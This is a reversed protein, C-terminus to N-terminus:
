AIRKRFPPVALSLPAGPVLCGPGSTTYPFSNTLFREPTNLEYCFLVFYFSFHGSDIAMSTAHRIRWEELELSVHIYCFVAETATFVLSAAALM